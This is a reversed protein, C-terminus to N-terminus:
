PISELLELTATGVGAVLLPENSSHVYRMGIHEAHEEASVRAADFDRGTQIVDAGLRLTAAVKLPNAAEPM